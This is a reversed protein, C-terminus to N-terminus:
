SKRRSYPCTQKRNSGTRRVVHLQGGADEERGNQDELHRGDRDFGNVGETGTRATAWTVAGCSPEGSVRQYRQVQLVFCSALSFKLPGTTRRAGGM